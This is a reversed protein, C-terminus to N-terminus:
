DFRSAATKQHSDDVMEEYLTAHLAQSAQSEHATWANEQELYALIEPDTRSDDRLWYYDDIRRDGHIEMTHPRKAALPEKLETGTDQSTLEKHHDDAQCAMLSLMLTLLVLPKM